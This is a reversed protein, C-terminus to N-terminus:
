CLYETTLLELLESQNKLINLNNPNRPRPTDMILTQCKQVPVGRLIVINDALRVAELPDHTVQLVTKGCLLEAALDQLGLRTMFDLASFPEDMLVIPREELLTRVLAVRQRMGGSLESIRLSLADNLGVRNLLKLAQERVSNKVQNRLRYGLLCNELVSLWPMLLDQQAMYSFRGRLPQNDSTKIMEHNLPKDVGTPLGALLKLLTSKGVGSPGLLCNWSGAPLHLDFNQFLFRHQYSLTLRHIFIDPPKTQELAINNM